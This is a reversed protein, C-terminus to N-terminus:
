QLHSEVGTRLPLSQQCRIKLNDPVTIETVGGIYEYAHIHSNIWCPLEQSHSGEVFTYNSGGLVATCLQAQTVEGTEPNIVPVTDGAYDVFLKEGARHQQRLSLDLKSAWRRYLECFQSKQYGGPHSEKYEYWLLQLTVGKRKLERHLYQVPLMQRKGQPVEQAAPPYLLSELTTDDLEVPLPRCLNANRARFLYDSVTSRAINCSKAIQRASLKLDYGLRLVERIKRRSLRKRAM